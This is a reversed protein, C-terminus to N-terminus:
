FPFRNLKGSHGSIQSSKVTIGHETLARVFFLNAAKGGAGSDRPIVVEVEDIGDAKAVKIMEELVNSTSKRFRVVDEIYYTGLKDRSMKVGVTWDPDRNAESVETAALGAIIGVVEDAIKIQGYDMIDKNENGNTM